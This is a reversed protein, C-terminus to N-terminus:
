YQRISATVVGFIQFDDDLNIKIPSYNPNEAALFLNGKLKKVRKVTFEGDVSAVVIKGERVELSKDVVLIDDNLIGADKMSDGSVRVFFTAAPHKILLEHLDLKADSYDEAPTPFGAKVSEFAIPIAKTQKEKKQM